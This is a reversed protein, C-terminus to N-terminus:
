GAPRNSRSVGNRRPGNAQGSRRQSEDLIYTTLHPLAEGILSGPSQISEAAVVARHTVHVTTETIGYMNVIEPHADSHREFWGRLEGFRLAEGGFIVLRLQLSLRRFDDVAAFQGFASPTQNLVTVRERSVLEYFAEANRGVEGPVVVLRGGYLLAGFMEWVSFDFAFSHFLTWVDQPGFRFRAHSADFLAVVNTRPVLVGKPQGTSGSTYIV